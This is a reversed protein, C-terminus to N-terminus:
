TLGRPWFKKRVFVFKKMFVKQEVQKRFKKHIVFITKWCWNPPTKLIWKVNKHAEKLLLSNQSPLKFIIDYIKLTKEIQLYGNPRVGRVCNKKKLIKKLKINKKLKQVKWRKKILKTTHIQYITQNFIEAHPNRFSNQIILYSKTQTNSIVCFTIEKEVFILVRNSKVKRWTCCLYM